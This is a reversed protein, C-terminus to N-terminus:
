TQGPNETRKADLCFSCFDSILLFTSYFESLIFNDKAMSLGFLCWEDCIKSGLLFYKECRVVELHTRKNPNRVRM